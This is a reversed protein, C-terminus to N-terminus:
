EKIFVRKVRGSVNTLVEYPISHMAKALSQIQTANEFVIAEDGEECNVETVDVMCMDMCINGLTKCFQNRIFVGHQGNGLLRSFGDAYGIPLVAVRSKKSLKGSRNYSVTEGEALEKIQSIKTKLIGVNELKLQEQEGSGIGYLGIGLRVMEFQAEPFRGIGASNCIHRIFPYGLAEQLKNCTATFRQIQSNSFNDLSPNDSAALHSFVSRLKIQKCNKLELILAETEEQMFGLRHMGTDLKLHVPYADTVGLNDLKNVFARLIRFSFLEPELRYNVIDEFAAEEPNMVMIPLTIGANRLEVGEDAYAVALYDAGLHQLSLAVESSGSGYAMAKVMAMMKVGPKLLSRFYLLNHQLKNLNIEFETDHSKLQLLASIQEFGFSRAGKLLITAESFHHRLGTFRSSFEDTTHFFLSNAKFLFKQKSIEPGIGVLLDINHQAVLESLKRYLGPIPMGSQEIDSVVVVKRKKQNQQRLYNLAISISDLDSNYYDNILQSNDIGKKLEMRISLAQLLKMREAITTNTYGLQKLVVACTAANSVSANDNFPLIFELSDNKSQMRIKFGTASLTWDSEKGTSITIATNIGTLDVEGPTLGNVIVKDAGLLLKAKESIKEERSKFGEDHASGISTFVGITPRIISALNYMEGTTSIGAEFIALQHSENLNLVSLPVGIQSNYSKPSRCISYKDKLLQYLWEKVMTKGNSGTVGIVPINFRQRHYAALQQLTHLPSDCLLFTCGASSFKNYDFGLNRILFSRVGKEILEPIFQHGDKWSSQLAVFLSEAPFQLDRSDNLFYRIQQQAPGILKSNTIDAIQEPTYMPSM